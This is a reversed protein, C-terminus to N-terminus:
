VVAGQHRTAGAPLPAFYRRAAACAAQADQKHDFCRDVGPGEAFWEDTELQGVLYGGSRYVGPKVRKWIMPGAAARLWTALARVPNGTEAVLVAFPDAEGGDIRYATVMWGLDDVEIVFLLDGVRIADVDDLCWSEGLGGSASIVDRVIDASRPPSALM